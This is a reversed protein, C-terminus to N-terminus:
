GGPLGGAIEAPSCPWDAQVSSRDCRPQRRGRRAAIRASECPSRQYTREAPFFRGIPKLNSQGHFAIGAAIREPDRQIVVIAALPRFSQAFDSAHDPGHRDFPRRGGIARDDYQPVLNRSGQHTGRSIVPTTKRGVRLRWGRQRCGSRGASPRWFPLPPFLVRGVDRALTTSPVLRDEKLARDTDLQGLVLRTFDAVNLRLYSRGMQSETVSASRAGVEIQYKCGDVLLGLEIPRSLRAEHARRCFEGCLRRLLGVPDLLRAM